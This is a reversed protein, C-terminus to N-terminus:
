SALTPGQKLSSSTIPIACTTTIGVDTYRKAQVYVVDLGLPDLRILGDLGADGPASLLGEARLEALKRLEDAVSASATPTAPVTTNPAQM